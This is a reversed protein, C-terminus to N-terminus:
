GLGEHGVGFVRVWWRFLRRRGRTPCPALGAMLRGTGIRVERRHVVVLEAVLELPQDHALQVTRALALRFAKTALSGGVAIQDPEEGGLEQGHALFVVFPGAIRVAPPAVVVAVGVVGGPALSRQQRRGESQGEDDIGRDLRDLDFTAPGAIEALRAEDAVARALAVLGVLLLLVLGLEPLALRVPPSAGDPEYRTSEVRHDEVGLVLRDHDFPDDAVVALIAGDGEEKAVHALHRM